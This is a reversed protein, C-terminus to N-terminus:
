TATSRHWLMRGDRWIQWTRASIWRIKTGEGVAPADAVLRAVEDTTRIGCIAVELGSREIRVTHGGDCCNLCQSLRCHMSIGERAAVERAHALLQHEDAAGSARSEPGRCRLCIALRLDPVPAM